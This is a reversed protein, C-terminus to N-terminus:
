IVTGGISFEGCFFAGGAPEEADDVADGAAAAHQSRRRGPDPPFAAAPPLAAAPPSRVCFVTRPAAPPPPSQSLSPPPAFLCLDRRQDSRTRDFLGAHVATSHSLLRRSVKRDSSSCRLLSNGYSQTALAASSRYAGGRAPQQQRNEPKKEVFKKAEAALPCVCAPRPQPRTRTRPPVPHNHGMVRLRVHRSGKGWYRELTKGSDIQRSHTPARPPPHPLIRGM